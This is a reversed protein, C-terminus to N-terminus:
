KLKGHLNRSRIFSRNRSLEFLIPNNIKDWIAARFSPDYELKEWLEDWVQIVFKDLVKDKVNKM